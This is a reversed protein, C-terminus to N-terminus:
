SVNKVKHVGKNVNGIAGRGICEDKKYVYNETARFTSMKLSIDGVKDEM